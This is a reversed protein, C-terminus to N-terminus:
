KKFHIILIMGPEGYHEFLLYFIFSEVLNAALNVVKLLM